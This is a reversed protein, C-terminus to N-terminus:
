RPKRQPEIYLLTAGSISELAQVSTTGLWKDYVMMQKNAYSDINRTCDNRSVICPYAMARKM